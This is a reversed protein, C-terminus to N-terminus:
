RYVHLPLPRPGEYGQPYIKGPGIDGPYPQGYLERLQSTFSREEDFVATSFDESQNELARLLQTSERARDFVEWANDLSRVAREYIQEYHTQGEALAAPSIDFLISNATLGLPNVFLNAEDVQRQFEDAQMVLEDLEPVTTRDIKQIGENVTDEEPLLANSVIWHFYGGQASRAAWGDVGWAPDIRDAVTPNTGRPSNPPTTSDTM